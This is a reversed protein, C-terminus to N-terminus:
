RNLAEVIDALEEPVHVHGTRGRYTFDPHEYHALEVGFATSFKDVTGALIVTGATINIDKVELGQKKVFEEVKKLDNLNAGHNSAFEERSLHGCESLPGNTAKEIMSNLKATTSPRRVVITVLLKENPDALDEKKANPLAARESGPVRVLNKDM